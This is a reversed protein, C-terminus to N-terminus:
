LFLEVLIRCGIDVNNDVGCLIADVTKWEQWHLSISSRGSVLISLFHLHESCVHVRQCRM